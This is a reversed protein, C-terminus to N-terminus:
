DTAFAVGDNCTAGASCELHAHAHRVPLASTLADWTETPSVLMAPPELFACVSASLNSHM